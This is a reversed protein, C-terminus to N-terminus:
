KTSRHTIQKGTENTLLVWLIAWIAFQTFTHFQAYMVGTPAQEHQWSLSEQQELLGLPVILRSDFQHSGGHEGLQVKKFPYLRLFFM